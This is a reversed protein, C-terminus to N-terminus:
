KVGNFCDGCVVYLNKAGILGSKDIMEIRLYKESQCFNCNNNAVEMVHSHLAKNITTVPYKQPQKALEDLLLGTDSEVLSFMDYSQKNQPNQHRHFGVSLVLNKDVLSRVCRMVDGHGFGYDRTVGRTTVRNETNM